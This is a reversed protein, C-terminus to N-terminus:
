ATELNAEEDEIDLEAFHDAITWAHSRATEEDCGEILEGCFLMGDGLAYGVVFRHRPLRFMLAM